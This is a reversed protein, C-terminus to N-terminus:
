STDFRLMVYTAFVYMKIAIGRENLRKSIPMYKAQIIM